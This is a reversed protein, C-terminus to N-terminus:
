LDWSLEVSAGWLPQVGFHATKRILHESLWGSEVGLGALVGECAGAGPWETQLIGGSCDCFQPFYVACVAGDGSDMVM